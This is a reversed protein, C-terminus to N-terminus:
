FEKRKLLIVSLALTALIYVTAYLTAWGIVDLSFSPLAWQDRLNFYQLNPILYYATKIIIMFGTVLRDSLFKMEMSFHGLVWFFLTFVISSAPSTSFLSFFLALSSILAIKEITLVLLFLYKFQFEWGKFLLLSIHILGMGIVSIAITAILGGFRGFLYESRSLPRSLILYVSRSEIEELILTVAIFVALILGFFEISGIGLDFLLRK